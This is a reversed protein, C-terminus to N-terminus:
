EESCSDRVYITPQLDGKLYLPHRPIGKKSLAICFPEKVIERLLDPEKEGNGWAYVVRDVKLEKNQILTLIHKRNEPGVPDSTTELGKPKTSRYAYLNVVYVGGYGWDMSFQIVRKITPDDIMHDATSPNLMIFIIRPKDENWIRSLWYRYITDETILADKMMPVSIKSAKKMGGKITYQKRINKRKNKTNRIAPM